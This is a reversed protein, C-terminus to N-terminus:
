LVLRFSPERIGLCFAPEVDVGGRIYVWEGLHPGPGQSYTFQLRVFPTKHHPTQAPINDPMFKVCTKQMSDLRQSFMHADTRHHRSLGTEGSGDM